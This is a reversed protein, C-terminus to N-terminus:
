VSVPTKFNFMTRKPFVALNSCNGFLNYVLMASYYSELLKLSKSLQTSGSIFEM